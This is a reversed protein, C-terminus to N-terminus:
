STKLTKLLEAAGQPCFFYGLGKLTGGIEGM